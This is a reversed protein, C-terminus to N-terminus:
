KLHPQNFQEAIEKEHDEMSKRAMGEALRNVVDVTLQGQNMLTFGLRELGATITTQGGSLLTAAYSFKKFVDFLLKAAEIQGPTTAEINGVKELAKDLSGVGVVIGKEMKVCELYRTDIPNRTLSVDYTYNFLAAYAEPDAGDLGKLTAQKLLQDHYFKTPNAAFSKLDTPKVKPLDNKHYASLHENLNIILNLIGSRATEKQSRDKAIIM